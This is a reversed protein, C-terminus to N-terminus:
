LFSGVLLLNFGSFFVFLVGFILFPAFPLESKMTLSNRAFFLGICTRSFWASDSIKQLLLYALGFIAGTWFGIIIASLGLSLGLYAGIGIALKGDGLGIWRGNSVKWLLYFPLFLIGGALFNWILFSGGYLLPALLKALGAIVFLTVLGDPIIKHRIDYVTMVVLVGVVVLDFFLAISLGDVSYVALFLIATILEIIPYQWSIKSKCTRCRGRFTLFSAVPIMDFWQLRRGCSFCQSRGNISMGTNYRYIVVNLFSGICAGLLFFFLSFM